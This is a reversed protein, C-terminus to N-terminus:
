SLRQQMTKTQKQSQMDKKRRIPIYDKCFHAEFDLLTSRQCLLDEIGRQTIRKNSRTHISLSVLESANLMIYSIEDCTLDTNLLLLRELLLCSDVIALVAMPGFNPCEQLHFSWLNKLFPAATVWGEATINPCVALTLDALKDCNKALKCLDQNSFARSHYLTFKELNPCLSAATHFLNSSDANFCDIILRKVFHGMQPNAVLATYLTKVTKAPDFFMMPPQAWLHPQAADKWARSVLCLNALTQSKPRDYRVSGYHEVIQAIIETPLQLGGPM